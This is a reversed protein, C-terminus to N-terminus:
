GEIIKQAMHIRREDKVDGFQGLAKQACRRARHLDGGKKSVLAFRLSAIGIGYSDGTRQLPLGVAPLLLVAFADDVVEALRLLCRVAGVANRTQRYLIAACLCHITAAETQGGATEAEAASLLARADRVDGRCMAVLGGARLIRCQPAPSLGGPPILCKLRDMTAEALELHGARAHAEALITLAQIHLNHGVAELPREAALSAHELARLPRGQCLFIHALLAHTLNTGRANQAASFTQHAEECSQIGRVIDGLEFELKAIHLQSQDHESNAAIQLAVIGEKYQAIAERSQGDRALALALERTCRSAIHPWKQRSVRLVDKMEAAAEKPALFRAMIIRCDITFLSDEMRQYIGRAELALAVPDGPVSGNFAHYATELLLEAALSDLNRARAQTLAAPLLSPATGIGTQIHVTCLQLVAKIAAEATGRSTSSLARRIIFDINALEGSVSSLLEGDFATTAANRALEAFSFHHDYVDSAALHNPPHHALMFSRIPALVYLRHAGARVVLSTRLLASLAENHNDFKWLCIDSDVVGNPLLSLMSLLHQATPVARLRPSRLSLSIATSLNSLRTRGDGRELLSTEMIAWQRLLSEVSETQALNAMLIIALPVNDLHRLLEAAASESEANRPDAIAYFIQRSADDTVGGPHESGRLTLIFSLSDITGLFRLLAEAELRQFTEEWASEFNDLVIIAPRQQGLVARLKRFALQPQSTTIGLADCIVSLCNSRGESADCPVFFRRAGFREVLSSHHLVAIALTTKGMGPGGLIAIRASSSGSLM